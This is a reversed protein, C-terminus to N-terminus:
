CLLRVAPGAPEQPLLRDAASPRYDPTTGALGMQVAHARQWERLRAATGLDSWGLSPGWTYTTLNAANSLVERSFDMAPWSAFISALDTFASPSRAAEFAQHVIAGGTPRFLDVIADGRGVLVMTNWTAGSAMLRAAEHRSPKEAFSLVPHFPSERATEQATAPVIWGYDTSPLTPTTGFLVIPHTGAAVANVATRIGNRYESESDVGHDAPTMMVIANPERALIASLGWLVAIGTGRDAPQTALHGLLEPRRLRDVYHRQGPGLVTVTRDRGVLGDMRTITREVMAETGDPSWFQKPMGGTLESLRSGRGGALVLTWFPYEV